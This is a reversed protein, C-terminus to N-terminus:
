YIFINRLSTQGGVNSHLNLLQVGEKTCVEWIDAFCTNVLQFYGLSPGKDKRVPPAQKELERQARIRGRYLPCLM